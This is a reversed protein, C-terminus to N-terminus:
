IKCVSLVDYFYLTLCVNQGQNQTPLIISKNM